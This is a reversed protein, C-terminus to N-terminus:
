SFHVVKAHLHGARVGAHLSSSTRMRPQPLPARHGAVVLLGLILAGCAAGGLFALLIMLM